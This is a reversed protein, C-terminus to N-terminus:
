MKKRLEFFLNRKAESARKWKNFTLAAQELLLIWSQRISEDQFEAEFKKFSQVQELPLYTGLRIQELIHILDNLDRVLPVPVYNKRFYVSSSESGAITPVGALLSNTIKLFPKAYHRFRDFTRFSFTLDSDSFDNWQDPDSKVTLQFGHEKLFSNFRHGFLEQPLNSRAGHFTIHNLSEKRAPNRRILHHQPWPHRYLTRCFGFISDAIIKPFYLPSEQFPNHVIHWHAYPHRGADVQMCIFFQSPLPKIASPFFRKHFLIIADEPLQPGISADFVDKVQLYTTVIWHDLGSLPEFVDLSLSSVPDPHFFHFRM